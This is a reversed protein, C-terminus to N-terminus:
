NTAPCECSNTVAASCATLTSTGGDALPTTVNNCTNSSLVSHFVHGDYINIGLRPNAVGCSAYPPSAGAPPGAINNITNNFILPSEILDWNAPPPGEFWGNSMVIAGGKLGDAQTITNHAIYIGYAETPPSSGATPGAGYQLGIGSWSCGSAWQYEGNVINNRVDVFSQFETAPTLSATTDTVTYGNNLEIGSTDYQQNGEVASDATQGYLTIVGGMPKNPNLKTCTPQRQDIFNDVTYVQWYERAVVLMSTSQPIVDWAPSVTFTVPAIAAGSADLPYSVVKRVQGRGPGDAVVVWHESFYNGPLTLTGNLSTIPGAVTVTNTTATQVPQAAPLAFMNHNADYAIAEGDGAKDGTCTATNQAVLTNEVNGQLAWFFGARWGKPDTGPNYLYATSTGDATNQSFDVRRGAGLGTAIVGQGISVNVYSGPEFTNQTFISDDIHFKQNVNNIDGNIALDNQFAGFDNYTVYLHDIPMGGDQIAYYPQIFQNATITVNSVSTPATASYAKARRWNVGLQLAPGAIPSSATYQVTDQFVLGSVINSGQLTFITRGTWGSGRQVTAVGGGYLNVGVPVLIGDATVGSVATNNVNWVGSDFTVTGGGNAQADAIASIICATDDAGDDPVCGGHAAVSYATPSPPNPLVNLTQGTLAVWSVGDRSVSVNYTGTVMQPLAVQAVYEAIATGPNGDGAATLTYTAPGVLQVQTVGGAAAQLNRGVIKLYRPLGGVGSETAYTSDPSIWIPRADNILVGNSWEGSADQVWLAYSQGAQMAPPLSVALSDPVNLASVVPAVGCTATSTSPVTVPATLPQTTDTVAVYVVTDTAAFGYGALLLLDGPDGRVPSENAMQSFIIPPTASAGGSGSFLLAALAAACMDWM